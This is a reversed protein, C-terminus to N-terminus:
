KRQDVASNFLGLITGDSDAGGSRSNTLTRMAAYDALQTLTLGITAKRDIILVSSLIDYRIPLSIQSAGDIKLWKGSLARGDASRVAISLIAHAPGPENMISKVERIERSGFIQPRRKWIKEVEKPGDDVFVIVINPTCQGRALRLGAREADAVLRDAIERSQSTKLGGVAFCVPDTYRAIPKDFSVDPTIAEVLKQVRMRDSLRKGIVIVTDASSTRGAGGHSPSAESLPVQSISPAQASVALGIGLLVLTEEIRDM